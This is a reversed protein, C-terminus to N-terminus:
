MIRCRKRNQERLARSAIEGGLDTVIIIIIDGRTISSSGTISVVGGARSM